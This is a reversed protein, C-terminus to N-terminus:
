ALHHEIAYRTAASRSSVQIKRYMSTLHFNITRPSIALREAIQVDTLGQAVLRLVDVERRTLDDPFAQAPVPLPTDSPSVTLVATPPEPAALLNELTMARGEAQAAAFAVEGLHARLVALDQAYMAHERPTMVQEIKLRHEAAGRLPAAQWCQEAKSALRVAQWFQGTKHALRALGLLCRGITHTYGLTSALFLGNQFHTQAQADDGQQSTVEGLIAFSQGISRQESTERAVELAEQALQAARATDGELLAIAGLKNLMFPLYSHYNMERAVALARTYWALAEREDNQRRALDGLCSSAAVIILTNGVARALRLAEQAFVQAESDDEQASAISALQACVSARGWHEGIQQCILLCEELVERAGGLNDQEELLNGLATLSMGMRWKDDLQRGLALAEEFLVHARVGDHNVHQYIVGSFTLMAILRRHEGTARLLSVSEELQAPASSTTKGQTRSVEFGLYGIWGLAEAYCAQHETAGPLAVAAEFWHMLEEWNGVSWYFYNVVALCLRLSGGVEEHQLFSLMAARLNEQEQNFQALWFLQQGGDKVERPLLHRVGQEAFGLYYESHACQGRELEGCVQLCELGYERITELLVLRPEEGERGTQQVLSQDILSTTMKLVEGEEDHSGYVSRYVAEVAELSSGGVFVALLRFLSQEDPALLDYSWKLTNRLTQQRAPSTRPGGTLVLFRQSLRAFLEQSPLVKVKAAALEIALPLGDLQICIKAITRRNEATIQFTPLVARARHLFLNIAAYESLDDSEAVQNLHPLALPPVPYEQEGHVHLVARSTVLIAVQPCALLVEEVLPAAAVLHEFNDLILLFDKDQLFRTVQEGLPFEAPGRCGLEQLISPMVLEPDSISALPVFCVGDAFPARLETAVQIALRTKGIGGPGVLTLLRVDSRTLLECITAVEHERGLLPTLAAPVKWMPPAPDLPNRVMM